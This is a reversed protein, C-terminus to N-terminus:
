DPLNHLKFDSPTIGTMKKFVKTFYSHEEFGLEFTIEKVGLDTFLLLRRAELIRRENIIEAATRGLISRTMENLKRHSVGLEQAYFGVAHGSRFYREVLANFEEWFRQKGIFSPHQHELACWKFDEFKAFLAQLVFKIANSRRQDFRRYELAMVSFLSEITPQGEPPVVFHSHDLFQSFLISATTPLFTDRFRIACGEVMKSPRFWHVRGRPVIILTGPLIEACEDDLQHTAPGNKIWIIEQYYHRHPVKVEKALAVANTLDFTFFHFDHVVMEHDLASSIEYETPYDVNVTRPPM